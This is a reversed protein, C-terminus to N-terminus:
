GGGEGPLVFHLVNLRYFLHADFTAAKIRPLLPESTSAMIRLQPRRGLEGRQALLERLRAQADARLKGVEELFLTGGQLVRASSASAAVLDATLVSFLDRELVSAPAGCDVCLFPGWRWGSLSHIRLALTRAHLPGTFLVCAANGAASALEREDILPVAEDPRFGHGGTAAPAHASASM